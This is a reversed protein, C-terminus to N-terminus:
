PNTSRVVQPSSPASPSPPIPELSVRNLEERYFTNEDELEQLRRSREADRAELQRLRDDATPAPAPTPPAPAPPAPATEPALDATSVPPEPPAGVAGEHDKM